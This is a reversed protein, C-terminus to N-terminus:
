TQLKKSKVILSWYHQVVSLILFVFVYSIYNNAEVSQNNVVAILALFFFTLSIQMFSFRCVLLLVAYVYLLVAHLGAIERIISYGVVFGTWILPFHKNKRVNLYDLQTKQYFKDFITTM